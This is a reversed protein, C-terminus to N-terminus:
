ELPLLQGKKNTLEAKVLANRQQQTLDTWDRVHGHFVGERTQDLVVIKGNGRDVGVRRPSTGKVQISNDLAAQGNKPGRSVDGKDESGHKASPEFRPGEPQAPTSQNSPSAQTQQTGSGNGSKQLINLNRQFDVANCPGACV